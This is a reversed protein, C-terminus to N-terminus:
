IVRRRNKIRSYTIRTFNNSKAYKILVTPTGSAGLSAAVKGEPSSVSDFLLRVKIFDNLYNQVTDKNLLHKEYEVCYKCHPHYFYVFLPKKTQKHEIVAKQYGEFNEYWDNAFAISYILCLCILLLGFVISSKESLRKPLLKLVNPHM